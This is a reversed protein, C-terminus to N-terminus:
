CNVGPPFMEILVKTLGDRFFDLEQAGHRSVDLVRDKKFPGRDNIRLMTSKGNALNTVKVESGIPLTKHAATLSDSNQVEGTATKRLKKTRGYWSAIGEERYTPYECAEPIRPVTVPPPQIPVIPTYTPVTSTGCAALFLSTASFLLASRTAQRPKMRLVGAEGRGLFWHYRGLVAPAIKKPRGIPLGPGARNNPKQECVPNM